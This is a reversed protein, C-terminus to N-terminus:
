KFEFKYKVPINSDQFSQFHHKSIRDLICQESKSGKLNGDVSEVNVIKGSPQITFKVVLAGSEPHCKSQITKNLETLSKRVEDRIRGIDNKIGYAPVVKKFTHSPHMDDHPKVEYEVENKHRNKQVNEDDSTNDSVSVTESSEDSNSDIQHNEAETQVSNASDASEQEPQITEIPPPPVEAQNTTTDTQVSEISELPDQEQQQNSHEKPSECSAICFGVMGGFGLVTMTRILFIRKFSKFSFM